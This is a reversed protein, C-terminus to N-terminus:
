AEVATASAAASTAASSAATTTNSHPLRNRLIKRLREWMNHARPSIQSNNFDRLGTDEPNAMVPFQVAHGNDLARVEGNGNSQQLPALEAEDIPLDDDGSALIGERQQVVRRCLASTIFSDRQFEQHSHELLRHCIDAFTLIFM